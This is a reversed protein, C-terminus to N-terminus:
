KGCRFTNVIQATAYAVGVLTVLTGYLISFAIITKKCCPSLNPDKLLDDFKPKFLELNNLIESFEKQGELRKSLGKPVIQSTNGNDLINLSDKPQFKEKLTNLKKECDQLQHESVLTGSWADNLNKLYKLLSQIQVFLKDIDEPTSAVTKINKHLLALDKLFNKACIKSQFETINPQEMALGITTALCLFLVTFFGICKKM